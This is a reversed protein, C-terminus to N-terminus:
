CDRFVRSGQRRSVRRYGRGFVGCIWMRFEVWALSVEKKFAFNRTYYVLPNIGSNAFAGVPFLTFLYLLQVDNLHQLIYLPNTDYHWIICDSGQKGPYEPSLPKRSYYTKVLIHCINSVQYTDLCSIRVIQHDPTWVFSVRRMRLPKDILGLLVWSFIIFWSLYCFIFLVVMLLVTM